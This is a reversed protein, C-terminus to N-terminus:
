RSENIVELWHEHVWGRAQKNFWYVYFKGDSVPPATLIVGTPGGCLGRWKVLSGVNM